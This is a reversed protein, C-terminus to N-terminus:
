ALHSFNTYTKKYAAKAKKKGRFLTPKDIVV